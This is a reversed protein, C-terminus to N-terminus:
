NRLLIVAAVAMALFAPAKATVTWRAGCPALTGALPGIGVIFVNGPSLPDIGPEIEDFLTRSNFGRGGVYERRLWEPTEEKVIRGETLYVKLRQGGWGYM